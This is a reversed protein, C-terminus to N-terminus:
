RRFMTRQSEPVDDVSALRSLQLARLYGIIAWRDNVEIQAAYPFMTNRGESIVHFLEGDPLRVIRPDHLNAVTAM